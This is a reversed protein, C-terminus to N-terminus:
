FSCVVIPAQYPHVKIERRSQCMEAQLNTQWQARGESPDASYIAYRAPALKQAAERLKRTEAPDLFERSVPVIRLNPFRRKSYVELATGPNGWQADVFVVAPRKEKELIALVEKVGFGTSWRALYNSIAWPTTRAIYRGPSAAMLIDQYIWQALVVVGLAMASRRVFNGNRSLAPEFLLGGLRGLLPLLTVIVATNFLYENFGRLLFIVTIAGALCM